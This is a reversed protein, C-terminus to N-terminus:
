LLLIGRELVLLIVKTQKTFAFADVEKESPLHRSREAQSVSGPSRHPWRQAAGPANEPMDSLSPSM